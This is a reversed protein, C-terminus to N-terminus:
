TKVTEKGKSFFRTKLGHYIYQYGCKIGPRKEKEPGGNFLWGNEFEFAYREGERREGAKEEEVSTLARQNFDLM